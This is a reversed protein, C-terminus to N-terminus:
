RREIVSSINDLQEYLKMKLDNPIHSWSMDVIIAYKSNGIQSVLVYVYSIMLDVNEFYELKLRCFLL